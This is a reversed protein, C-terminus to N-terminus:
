KHLRINDRDFHGKRVRNFYWLTTFRTWLPGPIDRLPSVLARVVRALLQVGILLTPVLLFVYGHMMSVLDDCLPTSKEV